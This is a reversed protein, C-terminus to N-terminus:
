LMDKKKYWKITRTLGMLVGYKVNIHIIKSVEKNSFSVKSTMAHLRRYSFLLPKKILFSLVEFLTAIIYGFWIPLKIIKSKYDLCTLIHDVIANLKYSDGSVIFVKNFTDKNECITTLLDVFDRIYYFNTLSNGSGFIVFRKEKIKKVMEFISGKHHEGFIATPRLITVNFCNASTELLLEEAKKKAVGYHTKPSGNKETININDSSECAAISSVFIFHKVSSSKCENALRQTVFINLKNLLNLEKINPNITSYGALHYVVDINLFINSISDNVLDVKVWNVRNDSDKYLDLVNSNNYLAIIINDEDKALNEILFRGIFGSAGTVLIRRKKMDLLM